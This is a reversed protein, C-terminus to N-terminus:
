EVNIEEITDYRITYNSSNPIKHMKVRQRHYYTRDTSRHVLISEIMM